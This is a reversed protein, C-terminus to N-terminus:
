TVEVRVCKSEKGAWGPCSTVTVQTPPEDLSYGEAQPIIPVRIPYGECDPQGFGLVTREEYGAKQRLWVTVRVPGDSPFFPGEPGWGEPIGADGGRRPVRDVEVREVAWDTVGPGYLWH